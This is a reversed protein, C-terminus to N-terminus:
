RALSQFDSPSLPGDFISSKLAVQQAREVVLENGVLGVHSPIWILTVEIGNQFLSWCLQKCEYVLPHTQHAIRSSLMAKISSLSDTPILCRKSPQMVEAIHRLASLEHLSFVLRVQSKIDLDVWVWQDGM